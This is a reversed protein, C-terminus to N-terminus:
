PYTRFSSLLFHETYMFGVDSETTEFRIRGSPNEGVIYSAM